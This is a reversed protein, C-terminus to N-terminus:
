LKNLVVDGLHLVHGPDLRYLKVTTPWRRESRGPASPEAAFANLEMLCGDPVPLGSISFTGDPHRQVRYPPNEPSWLTYGGRDPPELRVSVEFDAVPRGLKDVARGHIAGLPRLVLDRVQEPDDPAWFFSVGLTRDRNFAYGSCNDFSRGPTGAVARVTFRGDDDTQIPEPTAGAIDVMGAVPRGQGDVLRGPQTPQPTVAFDVSPVPGEAPVTIEKPVEEFSGDRWNYAKIICDGPPVRFRCLGDEKTEGTTLWLVPAAGTQVRLRAGELPRGDKRDTVRVDLLGGESCVLDIGATTSGAKAEVDAAPLCVLDSGLGWSVRVAYVGEPVGTLTYRGHRDTRANPLSRLSGAMDTLGIHVTEKELPEGGLMLRGEITAAARLTVHLDHDNAYFPYSRKDPSPDDRFANRSDYMAYRPHEIRLSLVSLVPIRDIVFRGEADTTIPAEQWLSPSLRATHQMRGFRERREQVTAKVVAGPVPRGQEDTVGGSFSTPELLQIRISEFDFGRRMSRYRREDFMTVAYDPHEFVLKRDGRTEDLPAAPSLRGLQPLGALRFRGREDTLAHAEDFILELPPLRTVHSRVQVGALPKGEPDTVLGSFTVTEEPPREEEPPSPSAVRDEIAQESPSAQHAETPVGPLLAVALLVVLVCGAWSLRARRALTRDIVRALRRHLPHTSPACGLLPRQAIKSSLLEALRVLTGGYGAQTTLKRHLILDDCCEERVGRIARNLLWVVPNFWWLVAAAIQLWSVWPDRRKHHALEHALVADAEDASLQRIAGAPVLVSARFLGFAMSASAEASILLRVPRRFGLRRSLRALGEHLRGSTVPEAGRVLRALRVLHFVVWAVLVTCGLGYLFMLWAAPHVRRWPVNEGALGDAAAATALDPGLESALRAHSTELSLVTGEGSQGLASLAESNQTLAASDRRSQSVLAEVPSGAGQREVTPGLRSFLGTPAALMPPAFLKALAVLLLAYRLPSPLRRCRWVALLMVMAVLSSQWTARVVYWWWHEAATNLTEVAQNM